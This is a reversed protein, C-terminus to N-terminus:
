EPVDYVYGVTATMGGRPCGNAVANSRRASKLALEALAIGSSWFRSVCVDGTEKARVYEWEKVDKSM